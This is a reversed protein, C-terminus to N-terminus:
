TYYISLNQSGDHKNSCRLNLRQLFNFAFKRSENTKINRTNMFIVEMSINRCYKILRTEISHEDLFENHKIIFNFETKLNNYGIILRKLYIM